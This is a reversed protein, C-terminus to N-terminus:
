HGIVIGLNVDFTRYDVAEILRQRDEDALEHCEAKVHQWTWTAEFRGSSAHGVLLGPREDHRPFAVKLREIIEKVPLDILGPVDEGWNLERAIDAPSLAVRPGENWFMLVDAM